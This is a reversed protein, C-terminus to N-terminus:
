RGRYMYRFIRNDQHLNQFADELVHQEHMGNIMGVVSKADVQIPLQEAWADAREARRRSFVERQKGSMKMARAERGKELESAERDCTEDAEIV